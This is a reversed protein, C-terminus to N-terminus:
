SPIILIHRKSIDDGDLKNLEKISNPSKHFTKAVSWLTCSGSPYYVTITGKNDSYPSDTNEVIKTLVNKTNKELYLGYIRFKCETALEGNEPYANFDCLTISVCPFGNEAADCLAIRYTVFTDTFLLEDKENTGMVSCICKIVAFCSNDSNEFTVSHIKCSSDSIAQLQRTDIPTKESSAISTDIEFLANEFDIGDFSTSYTYRHSFGDSCFAQQRRNFVTLHCCCRTNFTLIRSEGFSDFSCTTDLYCIDFLACCLSSDSIVDNSYTYEFESPFVATVYNPESDNDEGEAEYLVHFLLEGSVTVAGDKCKTEIRNVSATSFVVEVACPNEKSIVAEKEFTIDGDFFRSKECIETKETLTSTSDSDPSELLEKDRNEFITCGGYLVCKTHISRQNEPKSVASTVTFSPLVTHTQGAEFPEKFPITVTKNFFACKIKGKFDSIYVIAFRIEAEVGCSKGDCLFNVKEATIHTKLIRVIGPLYQPLSFDFQFELEKKASYVVSEMSLLSSM